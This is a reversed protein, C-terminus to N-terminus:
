TYICKYSLYEYSISMKIMMLHRNKREIVNRPKFDIKELTLIAAGGRKHNRYGTQCYRCKILNKWVIVNLIYVSTSPHVDSM